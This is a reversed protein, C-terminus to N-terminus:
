KLPVSDLTLQLFVFKRLPKVKAINAVHCDLSFNDRQFILINICFMCPIHNRALSSKFCTKTVTSGPMFLYNYKASVLWLVRFFGLSISTRRLSRKSIENHLSFDKTSDLPFFLFFKLKCTLIDVLTVTDEFARKKYFCIFTIFILFRLTMPVLNRLQNSCNRRTDSAM